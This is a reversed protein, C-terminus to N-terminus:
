EFHMYTLWLCIGFLLNGSVLFCRGMLSKCMDEKRFHESCFVKSDTVFFDDKGHQQKIRNCWRRRQKDDKPFHHQRRSGDTGYFKISCGFVACQKRKRKSSAVSSNPTSNAGDIQSFIQRCYGSM